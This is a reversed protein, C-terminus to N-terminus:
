KKYLKEQAEDYYDRFEALQVELAEIRRKAVKRDKLTADAEIMENMAEVKCGLTILATQIQANETAMDIRLQRIEQLVEEVQRSVAGVNSFNTSGSYGGNAYTGIPTYDSWTSSYKGVGIVSDSMPDPLSM